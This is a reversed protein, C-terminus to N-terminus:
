RAINQPRPLLVPANDQRGRSNSRSISPCVQGAQLSGTAPDLQFAVQVHFVSNMGADRGNQHDSLAKGEHDVDNVDYLRITM